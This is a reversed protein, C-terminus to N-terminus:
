KKRKKLNIIDGAQIKSNEDLGNKKYLKKLKVGYIQSIDWLTEGDVVTHTDKKAKGKKPQVYIIDGAHLVANKGLDNYKYLRNLSLEFEKAIKYFTDNNAAIVFSVGNDQFKIQHGLRVEISGDNTVLVPPKKSPKFSTKDYKYLEHQEILDILLYGYKPNTAYGAKKLGHAWAKYDTPDLDFLFAYRSRGTLFESHDQFSQDASEYKRFCENKTDDDAIFSAGKWGHCKIGFHNNAYKALASNGNASELIGQALTISAPIGHALMQQQAENKWMDIYETRSVRREAPQALLPASLMLGIGLTVIAKM